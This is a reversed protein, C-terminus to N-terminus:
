LKRGLRLKDKNEWRHLEKTKIHITIKRGQENLNWSGYFLIYFPIVHCFLTELM